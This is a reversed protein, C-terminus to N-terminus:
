SSFLKYAALGSTALGALSSLLPPSTSGTTTTTTSQTSPASRAAGSLLEVQSRPWNRADLFNQYAVDLGQQELGQKSAGASELAALRQLDSGQALNLNQGLATGAKLSADRDAQWAKLGEDYSSAYGKALTDALTNYYAENTNAEMVGHRGGGFAGAKAAADGIQNQTKARENDLRSTIRNLVDEVYPNMYAARDADPWRDAGAATMGLSAKSLDSYMPNNAFDVVGQQAQLQEPAFGAVRPNTYQIYPLNSADIAKTSLANLMNQTAPDNVQQATVTQSSSGQTGGSSGGFLSGVAAGGLAGLGLTMWDM